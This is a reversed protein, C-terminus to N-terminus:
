DKEYAEGYWDCEENEFLKAMLDDPSFVPVGSALEM